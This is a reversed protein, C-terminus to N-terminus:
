TLWRSCTSCRGRVRIGKKKEREAMTTRSSFFFPYWLWLFPTLRNSRLFTQTGRHSLTVSNFISKKQNAVWIAATSHTPVPMNGRNYRTYLPKEFHVGWKLLHTQHQWRMNGTLCGGGWVHLFSLCLITERCVRVRSLDFLFSYDPISFLSSVTSKVTACCKWRYIKKHM